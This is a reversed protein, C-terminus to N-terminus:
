GRVNFILLSSKGLSDGVVFTESAAWTKLDTNQNWGGNPAGVTHNAAIAFGFVMAITALSMLLRVMAMKFSWFTIILIFLVEINISRKALRSFQHRRELLIISNIHIEISLPCLLKVLIIM